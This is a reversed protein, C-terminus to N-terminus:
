SKTTPEIGVLSVLKLCVQFEPLDYYSEIESILETLLEARAMVMNTITKTRARVSRFHCKDEVVPLTRETYFFSKEVGLEQCLTDFQFDRPEQGSEMKSVNQRTVGLVSGINELSLGKALRALRLKDGRYLQLSEIERM